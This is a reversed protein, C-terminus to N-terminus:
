NVNKFISDCKNWTPRCYYMDDKMIGEVFNPNLMENINMIYEFPNMMWLFLMGWCLLGGHCVLLFIMTNFTQLIFTELDLLIIDM